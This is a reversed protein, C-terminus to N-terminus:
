KKPAPKPAAAPPPPKTKNRSETIYFGSTNFALGVSGIVRKLKDQSCSPCKTLPDASIRQEIEFDHLCAACRYQYTPM